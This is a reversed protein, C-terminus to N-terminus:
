AEACGNDVQPMEVMIQIRNIGGGFCWPAPHHIVGLRVLEGHESVSADQLSLVQDGLDFFLRAQRTVRPKARVAMIATRVAQQPTRGLSFRLSCITTAVRGARYEQKMTERM